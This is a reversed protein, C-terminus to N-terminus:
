HCESWRHGIDGDPEIPVPYEMQIRGVHLPHSMYESMLADVDAAVDKPAEMLLEDHVSMLLTGGLEEILDDFEIRLMAMKMLEAASGQIHTNYAQREEQAEIFSSFKNNIKHLRRIRGLMTYTHGFEHGYHHLYDINEEIRPYTEFFQDKLKYAENKHINLQAAMKAAGEGFLTGLGVTKSEQRKGLVYLDRETLDEKAKKKASAIEEYPINFMNATNANHIDWGKFIADIMKTENANVAAVRFEIQPYDKDILRYGDSAIFAARLMYPDSSPDPRPINQLNPESSSLRSTRAGAQNYKTRLRDDPGLHKKIGKVYTGHLKVLKRHELLKKCFESGISGVYRAMLIDLTKEDTSRVVGKKSKSYKVPKMGFGGNKTDDYLIRRLHDTSNPNFSRGVITHLEHELSKIGERMPVDIKNIHDLDINVGRREMNFLCRTMPVEIEEFYDLLTTFGPCVEVPLEEAALEQRLDSWRMYTFYADCSAYETVIEPAEQYVRLLKDGVTALKKFERYEKKDFGLSRSVFEPNLFLEKFDGWKAEYSEWSQEKLGHRRTDDVMADMVIIDECRGAIKVGMTRLLHMDFKANALCWSVDRREFLPAFFHLMDAPFCYRSDETAMSWFLVNDRMRDLGTTETDIAVTGGRRMLHQLVPVCEDPNTAMITPPLLRLRPM